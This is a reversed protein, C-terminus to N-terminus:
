NDYNFPMLVTKFDDLVMAVIIQRYEQTMENWQICHISRYIDMREDPICLQCIKACNNITCVDFYNQVQLMKQLSHAVTQVRIDSLNVQNLILNVDKYLASVNNIKRLELGFKRITM